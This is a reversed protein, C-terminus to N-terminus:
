QIHGAVLNSSVNGVYILLLGFFFGLLALWHLRRGYQKSVAGDLGQRCVDQPTSIHSCVSLILVIVGFM